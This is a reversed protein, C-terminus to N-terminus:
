AFKLAQLPLMKAAIRAPIVTASLALLLSIVSVLLYHQWEVSVPVSSMFYIDARLKFFHFYSEASCLIFGLLDGLLTGVLAITMGQTIFIKAIGPTSAGLSKLVGISRTKEIVILLLTSVMNFAAVLIILGLIIPTPKKQLDIWAFITPYVEFVSRAIYPYFLVHNLSDAVPRSSELTPTRVDYGSVQTSSFGNFAQAAHLTTYALMDDYQSMGTAYTGVIRFRHLNALIDERTRLRENFRIAAINKGTGTSLERALGASIIIPDISDSLTEALAQGTVIRKMALVSSDSPLVGRLEVGAVGRPSRLIAEHEVFPSLQVIGQVKKLLYRSTGIYDPLPRNGYSSIEVNSTFGLVNSTLTSEFGSLISLTVILAATGLMIGGASILVIGSVWRRKSAGGKGAHGIMRPAHDIM